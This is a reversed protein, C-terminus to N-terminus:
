AACSAGWALCNFLLKEAASTRAAAAVGPADLFDFSSRYNWTTGAAAFREASTDDATMGAYDAHYVVYDVGARAAVRAYARAYLASHIVSMADTGNRQNAVYIRAGRPQHALMQRSASSLTAIGRQQATANPFVQTARLEGLTAGAFAGGCYRAVSADHWTQNCMMRAPWEYKGAMRGGDCYMNGVISACDAAQLIDSLHTGDGVDDAWLGYAADLMNDVPIDLQAATYVLSLPTYRAANNGLAHYTWMLYNIEGGGASSGTLGIRHVDVHLGAAGGILHELMQAADYLCKTIFETRGVIAASESMVAGGTDLTLSGDEAAHIFEEEARGGTSNDYYYYQGVLRYNVSAYHFGQAVHLMCEEGCDSSAAGSTYGGGHFQIFIPRTEGDPIDPPSFLNYTNITRDGDASYYKGYQLVQRVTGPAPGPAPAPPAPAGHCFALDQARTCPPECCPLSAMCKVCGGGPSCGSAHQADSCADARAGAPAHAAVAASLAAARCSPPM